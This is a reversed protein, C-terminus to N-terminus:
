VRKEINRIAEKAVEATEKRQAYDRLIEIASEDGAKGLSRIASLRVSKDKDSLAELLLRTSEEGEVKSLSFALKRRVGLDEHHLVPELYRVLESDNLYIVLEVIGQVIFSRTDKLKEQIQEIIVKKGVLKMLKTLIEGITRKRLFAGFYGVSSLVKEDIMVKEILLKAIAEDGVELCFDVIDNYYITNDIRKILEDIIIKSKKLHLVEKLFDDILSKHAEPLNKLENEKKLKRIINASAVFNKGEILKDCSKILHQIIHSYIDVDKQQRFEEFLYESLNGLFDDRSSPILDIIKSFSKTIRQHAEASAPNRMLVKWRNFIKKLLDPQNESIIEVILSNINIENELDLYDQVTLQSFKSVREELSFERWQKEGFIWPLEDKSMGARIFKDKLLPTLREKQRPDIVFKQILKKLKMFSTDKRGFEGLLLDVIVDDPFEPILEKIIDRKGMLASKDTALLVEKQLTPELSLITKALGKKYTGWEKPKNEMIQNGIKQLSKAVVNAQMASRQEQITPQKVSQKSVEKSQPSVKSPQQPTKVSPTKRERDGGQEAVPGQALQGKIVEAGRKFHERDSASRDGAADATTKKEVAGSSGINKDAVMKGIDAIVNAIEDPHTGFKSFVDASQDGVGQLKTLLYDMLMSDELKSREETKKSRSSVDYEIERVDVNVVEKSKLFEALGMDEPVKGLCELFMALEQITLGRKFGLSDLHHARLLSVFGEEFMRKIEVGKIREGNVVLTGKVESFDVVEDWTFIETLNQYIQEIPRQIMESDSPYLAYNANVIYLLRLVDPLIDSSKKSLSVLKREEAEESLLEKAYKIARDYILGDSEEIRRAYETARHYDEAKKFHYYLEGAVQDLNQPNLGEQIEGVQQHLDKMKDQEVLGYLAKRIEESVFSMEEGYPTIKKKIIGARKASDLIDLVYSEDETGLRHLLDANFDQGIVAARAIIEQAHKDLSEIRLQIVEGLTAPIESENIEVKQWKGKQIYLFGKQILFKLLEEIFLPNGNSTRHILGDFESSLEIDELISIIMESLGELSLPQLMIDLTICESFADYNEALPFEVGESSYLDDKQFAICFLIPCHKEKLAIMIKITKEDVLHFDDFCICLKDLSSINVLLTVLGDFVLQEWQEKPLDKLDVATAGLQEKMFPIVGALISVQEQSLGDVIRKKDVSMQELFTNLVLLLCRYSQTIYKESCTVLSCLVGNSALTYAFENLLRSKGIGAEGELVAVNYEQAQHTKNYIDQLQQLQKDREILKICPFRESIERERLIERSVDGVMSIRNKGQQKSAYLAKDALDILRLADQADDPFNAIGISLHLRIKAATGEFRFLNESVTGTIRKAVAVAESLTGGPLVISFEDGAYRIVTDESRVCQSLIDSIKKLVEDGVLHGYKDNIVKFDDVDIMFFWIHSGSDKARSLEQPLYQYLYRRNFVNTLEDRFVLQEVRRKPQQNQEEM